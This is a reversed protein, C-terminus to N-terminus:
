TTPLTGAKSGRFYDAADRRLLFFAIVALFVAHTVAQTWGNLYGIGVHAAMWALALWRAWDKGRLMFVGAVIALVRVLSIGVIGWEISHGKFDALHYILGMAGAAIYVCSIITVSLPRKPDRFM